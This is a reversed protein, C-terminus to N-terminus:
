RSQGMDSLIKLAQSSVGHSSLDGFRVVKILDSRAESLRGMHQYIQARLLYTEPLAWIRPVGSPHEQGIVKDIEALAAVYDQGRYHREARYFHTYGNDSMSITAVWTMVALVVFMALAIWWRRPVRVEVIRLSVGSTSNIFHYQPAFVVGLVFGAALGGFHAWNDIGPTVFGYLLNLGVLLAIGLLSRQSMHGFLRRQVMLFAALSGVVGFIAGSSGAGIGISNLLYSTVTGSLGALIYITLFRARGYLREVQPGFSILGVSNFALHLIGIHLFMATFLRWYEGDAILPGFMAGFDLLVEHNETGGMRTVVSWVSVNAALLIWTVIPRLGANPLRIVPQKTPQGEYGQDMSEGFDAESTLGKM